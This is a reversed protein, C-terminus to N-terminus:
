GDIGETYTVETITLGVDTLVAAATAGSLPITVMDTSLFSGYFRQGYTDRFLCTVGILSQLTALDTPNLARLALSHTHSKATGTLLRVIGNAYTRFEGNLSRTDARSGGGGVSGASGAVVGINTNGAKTIHVRTLHVSTQLTM